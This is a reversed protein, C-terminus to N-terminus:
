PCLNHRLNVLFDQVNTLIPVAQQSGRNALKDVGFESMDVVFFYVPRVAGDDDVQYGPLLNGCAIAHLQSALALVTTARRTHIRMADQAARVDTIV